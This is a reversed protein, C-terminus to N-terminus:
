KIMGRQKLAEIFKGATPHDPNIALIRRAADAARGADNKEAYLDMLAELADLSKAPQIAVTAEFEAIARDIKGEQKYIVALNYHADPFTPDIELAKEYQRQAEAINGQKLYIAGLNNYTGVYLPDIELVKQYLRLAEATKGDREELIALGFYPEPDKPNIEMAQMYEERAKSRNGEREALTAYAVHVRSHPRISNAIDLQEKAKDLQDMERYVMALNLHAAMVRPYHKLTQGFLEISNRWTMAQRFTLVLFAALVLGLAGNAIRLREKREHAYRDLALAALFLIGISPVYAYRDSAFYLDGGKTFNIFTPIVTVLFFLFGFAVTRTRRLSWLVFAVVIALVVVPVYFDPSGLAIPGNYPYLVSLEVPLFLKELYFVTSKCAMLIKDLMTSAQVIDRKGFLAVIGFATSLAAYPIKDLVLWRDFPRKERWDILLLVAPLTLVMVKSLLGLLFAALSLLYFRRSRDHTYFVYAIIALLFFATSLVDKRASAWAVAETHLPHLAFLLGTALGAWPKRSLLYAIWAVLLANLTHLLLNTFHFVFANLGGILYDIQYSILTLPIYLEPDYTTFAAKLTKWSISKITPNFYILFTDDWAVFISQSMPTLYAAFTLALFAVIIWGRLRWAPLSPLPHEM